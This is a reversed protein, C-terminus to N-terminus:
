ILIDDIDTYEDPDDIPIGLNKSYEDWFIECEESNNLYIASGDDFFVKGHSMWWYDHQGYNKYHIQGNKYYFDTSDKPIKWRVYTSDKDTSFGITKKYAAM